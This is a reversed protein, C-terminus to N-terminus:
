EIEIGEARVNEFFPSSVEKYQTETAAVLSFVKGYRYLFDELLPITKALEKHANVKPDQLVLLYDLDSENTFDQRAYSGFLILRSVRQGFCAKLERKLEKSVLNVDM